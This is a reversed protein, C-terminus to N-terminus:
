KEIKYGKKELCTKCEITLPAKSAKSAAELDYYRCEAFDAKIREETSGAPCILGNVVLQKEACGATALISAVIAFLFTKKM